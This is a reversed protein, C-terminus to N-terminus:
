FQDWLNFGVWSRNFTMWTWCRCNEPLKWQVRCWLFVQCFRCLGSTTELHSVGHTILNEVSGLVVLSPKIRFAVSPALLKNHHQVADFNFIIVAPIMHLCPAQKNDNASFWITSFHSSWPQGMTPNKTKLSRAIIEKRKRSFICPRNM